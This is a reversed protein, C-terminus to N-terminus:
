AIIEHTDGDAMSLVFPRDNLTAAWIVYRGPVCAHRHKITWIKGEWACSLGKLDRGSQHTTRIHITDPPVYTVGGWLRGVAPGPVFCHGGLDDDISTTHWLILYDNLRYKM